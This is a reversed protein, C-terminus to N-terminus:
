LAQITNFLYVIDSTVSETLYDGVWQSWEPFYVPAGPDCMQLQPTVFEIVGVADIRIDQIQQPLYNVIYCFQSLNLLSLTLDLFGRITQSSSVAYESLLTSVPVVTSRPILQNVIGLALQVITRVVLHVFGRIIDGIRLSSLATPNNPCQECASAHGTTLVVVLAFLLVVSYKM